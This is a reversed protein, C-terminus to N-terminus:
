FGSMIHGSFNCLIIHEENGVDLCLKIWPVDCQTIRKKASDWNGEFFSFPSFFYITLLRIILQCLRWTQLPATLLRRTQFPNFNGSYSRSQVEYLVISIGPGYGIVIAQISIKFCSKLGIKVASESLQILSELFPFWFLLSQLVFHM